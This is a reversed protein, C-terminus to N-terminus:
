DEFPKGYSGEAPEEKWSGERFSSEMRVKEFQDVDEQCRVCLRVAPYNRLRPEPINEGCEECVGYEGNKIRDLAAQIEKLQRQKYMSLRAELERSIEGAALDIEDGKEIADISRGLKLSDLQQLLV